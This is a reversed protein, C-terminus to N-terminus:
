KSRKLFALIQHVFRDFDGLDALIYEYIMEDDIEWYLHVLRNRLGAMQRLQNGAKDTIVTNEELINFM